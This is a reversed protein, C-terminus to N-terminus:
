LYDMPHSRWELIKKCFILFTILLTILDSPAWAWTALSWAWCDLITWQSLSVGVIMMMMMMMGFSTVRTRPRNSKSGWEGCRGCCHSSGSDSGGAALAAIARAASLGLGQPESPHLDWGLRHCSFHEVWYTFGCIWYCTSLIVPSGKQRVQIWAAFIAM